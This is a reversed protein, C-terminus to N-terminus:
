GKRNLFRATNVTFELQDYKKRRLNKSTKESVYKGITDPIAQAERDRRTKRLIDKFDVVDDKEKEKPKIEGNKVAIATENRKHQGMYFVGKM